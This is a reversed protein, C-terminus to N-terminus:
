AVLKPDVTQPGVIDPISIKSRPFWENLQPGVTKPGVTDPIVIKSRPFWENLPHSLAYVSGFNPAWSTYISLDLIPLGCQPVCYYINISEYVNLVSVRCRRAKINKQLQSAGNPHMTRHFEECQHHEQSCKKLELSQLAGLSRKPGM